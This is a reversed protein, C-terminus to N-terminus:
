TSAHPVLSYIDPQSTCILTHLIHKKPVYKKGTNKKLTHEIYTASSLTENNRKSRHLNLFSFIPLVLPPIEDMIKYTGWIAM